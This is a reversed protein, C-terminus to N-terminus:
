QFIAPATEVRLPLGYPSNGVSKDCRCAGPRGGIWINKDM